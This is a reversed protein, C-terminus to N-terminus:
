ICSLPPPRIMESSVIQFEHGFRQCLSVVLESFWGPSFPSVVIREVLIPVDVDVYVGKREPSQLVDSASIGVSPVKLVGQDDFFKCRVDDRYTGARVEREHAFARRKFMYDSSALVTGAAGALQTHDVYQVEGLYVTDPSKQFSNILREVTSLVAVGETGKLYIKWMADSEGDNMHWSNFFNLHKFVDCQLRLRRWEDTGQSCAARLKAAAPEGEYPDDAALVAISPFFLANKDLLSLFRPLDMYRWLRASRDQPEVFATHAQYPM